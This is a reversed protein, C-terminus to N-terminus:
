QSLAFTVDVAVKDTQAKSDANSNVTAQAGVCNEDGPNYPFSPISASPLQDATGQFFVYEGSDYVNDCDDDAWILVNVYPALEGADGDNCTTDGAESEPEACAGVEVDQFNDFVTSLTGALGGSNKLCITVEASDGPAANTLSLLPGSWPDTYQCNAKGNTTTGVELNPGAVTSVVNNESTETDSFQAWSGAGVLAAVAGIILVSLLISRKM